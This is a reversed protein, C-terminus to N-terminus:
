LTRRLIRCGYGSLTISGSLTSGTTMEEYAAPLTIHQPTATYNQVFIFENEGDDRRHAVIGYPLDTPLARPLALTQILTTFFDRQFALDNRSAIYYAQGKGYDNVTVAPRGAYFDSDYTALARAGELHILECLHTVQYPGVLGQENGSLGSISNSEHDYLGDIEEAWVGMIPRLPGPFGNLHCLDTENVVGSWYTTVFRGGQKVFADVREAFGDRVMYLMPAIVLQYGSLDVDANIIDVAM